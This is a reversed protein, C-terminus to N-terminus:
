MASTPTAVDLIWGVRRGACRGRVARPAAPCWRPLQSAESPEPGARPGREGEQVVETHRSTCIVGCGEPCNVPRLELFCGCSSTRSARGPEGGAGSELGSVPSVARGGVGLGLPGVRGGASSRSPVRARAGRGLLARRPRPPQGEASGALHPWQPASPMRMTCLAPGRPSGESQAAGGGTPSMGLLTGVAVPAVTLSPPGSETRTGM